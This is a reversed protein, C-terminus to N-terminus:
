SSAGPRAGNTEGHARAFLQAPTRTAAVPETGPVGFAIWGANYADEMEVYPQIFGPPMGRSALGSEWEERPVARARVPRGLAESMAAAMEDGSVPSGLEVIKTGRWGDVLLRAVQNGIDETAVMPFGRDVPQLFSDFWGTQAAAQLNPLYNELFSGPRVFAVPFPQDRLGEELMRTATIMGLGGPQHSGISSLAVVRPPPVHELAERFARIIARAEPFGPGPVFFPPLMLYAGDVGQLGASVAGADNMDGQLIEVGSRLWGEAKFPDRVLARVGHGEDLLRRAAAGGVKGTIGTIFFTM